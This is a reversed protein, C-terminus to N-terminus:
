WGIPAVSSDWFPSAAKGAARAHELVTVGIQIMRHHAAASATWFTM